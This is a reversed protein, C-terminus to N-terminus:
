WEGRVVVGGSEVVMVERDVVVVVVEQEGQGVHYIFTPKRKMLEDRSYRDDNLDRSANTVGM